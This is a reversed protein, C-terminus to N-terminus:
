KKIKGAFRNFNFIDEAEEDMRKRPILQVSVFIDTKRNYSDIRELRGGYDKEVNKYLSYPLITDTKYIYFRNYNWPSKIEFREYEKGFLITDSLNKRNRYNLLPEKTYIAGVGKEYVLKPKQSQTIKSLLVSQNDIDIDYYISDKIFFKGSTMEPIQLDPVIEIISDGMYNLKSVHFSKMSDLNKSANFYVNSIIDIAGEESKVEKKCSFLTASLFLVTSLITSKKM